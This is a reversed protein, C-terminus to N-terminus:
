AEFTTLRTIKNCLTGIIFIVLFLSFFFFSLFAFPSACIPLSHSESQEEDSESLLPSTAEAKVLGGKEGVFSM